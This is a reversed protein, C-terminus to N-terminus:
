WVERALPLLLHLFPYLPSAPPSFLLSSLRWTPADSYFDYYHEIAGDYPITVIYHCAIHGYVHAHTHYSNQKSMAM